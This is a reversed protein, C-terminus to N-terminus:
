TQQDPGTGTGDADSDDDAGVADDQASTADDDAEYDADEWRLRVLQPLAFNISRHLLTLKHGFEPYAELLSTM